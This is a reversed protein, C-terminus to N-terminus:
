HGPWNQNGSNGSHNGGQSQAPASSHAPSITATGFSLLKTADPIATNGNAALAGGHNGSEIRQGAGTGDRRYRSRITVPWRRQLNRRRYRTITTSHNPSRLIVRRRVRRGCPRASIARIARITQAPFISPVIPRCANRM